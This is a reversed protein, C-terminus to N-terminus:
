AYSGVWTATVGLGPPRGQELVRAADKMCTLGRTHRGGGREWSLGWLVFTDKRTLPRYISKSPVRQELIM